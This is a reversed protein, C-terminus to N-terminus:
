ATKTVPRKVSRELKLQRLKERKLTEELLTKEFEEQCERNTCVIQSHYLIMFGNPNQIKEIWTKSIKRKSNCRECLIDEDPLSNGIKPM